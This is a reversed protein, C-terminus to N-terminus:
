AMSGTSPERAPESAAVSASRAWHPTSRASVTSSSNSSAHRAASASYPAVIDASSRGVLLEFAAPPRVWRHTPPDWSSFARGDVEIEVTRSEGPELYVKAFGCLSKEPRAHSDTTDRAYVQVVESGARHGTNSVTVRVTTGFGPDITAIFDETIGVGPDGVWHHLRTPTLTRHDVSSVSIYDTPVHAVLDAISADISADSEGLRAGIFRAGINWLVGDHAWASHETMVEVGM